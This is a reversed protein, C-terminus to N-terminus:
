YFRVENSDGVYFPIILGVKFNFLLDTRTGMDASKTDFNIARQNKTFAQILEFGVLYNFRKDASLHQYGVFETFSIGSSKRDYGKNYPDRLQPVSQTEDQIRIYHQYLGPSFSVKLGSKRNESKPFIKGFSIGVLWGRQRLFVDAYQSNTGLIQGNSTRLSALVDEKVTNGFQFSGHIGFTFSSNKTIYESGFGLIFSQGFREKLKGGSFSVGYTIQFDIAAATNQNGDQAFLGPSLILFFIFIFTTRMM